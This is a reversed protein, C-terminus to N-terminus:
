GSISYKPRQLHYIESIHIISSYKLTFKRYDVRNQNSSLTDATYESQNLPLDSVSLFSCSFHPQHTFIVDPIVGYLRYELTRRTGPHSVTIFTRRTGPHHPPTKLENMAEGEGAAAERGCCPSAPQKYISLTTVLSKRTKQKNAM